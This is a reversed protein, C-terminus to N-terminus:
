GFFKFLLFMVLILLGLGGAYAGGILLAAKLSGLIAWKTEEPTLESGVIDSNTPAGGFGISDISGGPLRGEHRLRKPLFVSPKQVMSMDAVVMEEEDVSESDSVPRGNIRKDKDTNAM